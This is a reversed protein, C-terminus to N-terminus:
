SSFSKFSRPLILAFSFKNLGLTYKTPFCHEPFEHSITDAPSPLFSVVMRFANYRNKTMTGNSVCCHCCFCGDVFIFGSLETISDVTSIDFRRGSAAMTTQTPAMIMNRALYTPCRLQYRHPVPSFLVFVRM